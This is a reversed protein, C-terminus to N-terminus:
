RTVRWDYCRMNKLWKIDNEVLTYFM